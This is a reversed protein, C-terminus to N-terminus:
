LAEEEEDATQAGEFRRAKRRKKDFDYLLAGCNLEDEDVWTPEGGCKWQILYQKRVRGTRTPRITKSDLISEVEYEGEEEDVEWSDEPLLAEDFDVLEGPHEKEETPRDGWGFCPKLRSIHVLPYFQANEKKLDLKYTFENIKEEIRYPGHWM